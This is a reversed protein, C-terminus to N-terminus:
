KHYAKLIEEHWRHCGAKQLEEVMEKASNTKLSPITGDIFAQAQSCGQEKFEQATFCMELKDAELMLTGRFPCEKKQQALSLDQWLGLIKEGAKGLLVTQDAVAKGEDFAIYLSAIKDLDGGRNEGTEHFIMGTSIEHPNPYNEMVALIFGIQAARLTHEAVSETQLDTIRKWGARPEKRLMKQEFVFDVVSSINM